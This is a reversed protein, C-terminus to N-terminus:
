PRTSSVKFLSEPWKLTRGGALNRLQGVLEELFVQAAKSRSFTLMDKAVGKVQWLMGYLSTM